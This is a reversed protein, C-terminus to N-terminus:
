RGPEGFKLRALILRDRLRDPLIRAALALLRASRGVLYRARPRRATLAHLVPRAVAEPSLGRRECDDVEERWRRFASGYFRQAAAPMADIARDLQRRMRGWLPTAVSGPEVLSVHLGWPALELRLVDSLGELAFKSANYAGELPFGVRGSISGVNVIRGRALRLLPLVRQTVALLGTVNVEMQLRFEELPLFELPGSVVIGANNVLGSLGAEGLEEEIEAAARERHSDDTVDLILARLAGGAEAELAAGDEPRRVGGFVRWGTRAAALAVARGIGTSSGTVLVAPRVEADPM